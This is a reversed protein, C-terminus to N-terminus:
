RRPDVAVVVRRQAVGELPELQVVRRQGVLGLGGAREAEAEAAAEEAQQV